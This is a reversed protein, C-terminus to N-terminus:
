GKGIKVSVPLRSLYIQGYDQSTLGACPMWQSEVSQMVLSVRHSQVLYWEETLFGHRPLCPLVEQILDNLVLAAYFRTCIRATDEDKPQVPGGYNAKDQLWGIKVGVLRAVKEQPGQEPAAHKAVGCQRAEKSVVMGEYCWLGQM